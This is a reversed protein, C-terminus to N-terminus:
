KLPIIIPIEQSRHKKYIRFDSDLTLVTSEPYLETMRVICADAFSMPVNTYRKILEEIAAEDALCFAIKLAGRNVLSLVAQQSLSDRQVLFCTETIVAECTLLPYNATAVTATAWQHFQDAKSLLAVLVGTDLLIPPTM